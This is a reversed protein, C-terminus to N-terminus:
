GWKRRLVRYKEVDRVSRGVVDLASEFDGLTYREGGRRLVGQAAQRVLAQLDAGSFGECREGRVLDVVDDLGEVPMERTITRFIEGRGEGDPLDVFLRTELRGPRLVAEDIMDVRNTAAIVFVRGRDAAGALETLLTNVVRAGSESGAESRKPVLADIEDFFIVCPAAKRARLFVGRVSAESEGVFKNLLEPGKISIFSANSEAAVAQALLTKGCGPPGWLLVGSPATIGLSSYKEPYLIPSVISEHLSHRIETLAGVDTWRIDPKTTFGERKTSPTILPLVSRFASMTIAPQTHNPGNCRTLLLRLKSVANTPPSPLDQDRLTNFYGRLQWMDARSVLDALDAGVFGATLKALQHIDVDSALPCHRTQARLIRERALENPVPINIETDFRGARRLAPEISDPHNTTALMIVPKDAERNLDDMSRIMQSVIRKEMQSQSSERKPAIADIEDLFLISPALRKAEEFRDHLAKESEGSMGSVINSVEIFPVNLEAAFGRAIMTKGCGPPGHLLIGKPRKTSRQVFVQPFRLPWVILETLQEVISDIGGMEELSVDKPAEYKETRARKARGAGGEPALNARLTRNVYDSAKPMNREIDTDSGPANIAKVARVLSDEVLKKPRRALPLNSKKIAVYLSPVDATVGQKTLKRAAVLVESDLKEQLSM